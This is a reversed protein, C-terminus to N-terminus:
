IIPLKQYFHLHHQRINEPTTRWRQQLFDVYAHLLGNIKASRLADKDPAPLPPHLEITVRGQGDLASSVPVVRAGTDVALEAFSTAFPRERGLFPLPTGSSGQLGDPVIHLIGGGKLLKQVKRVQKLVFGEGKGVEVVNLNQRNVAGIKALVDHSELSTLQIGSRALSIPVCRSAGHHTNALIVGAGSESDTEGQLHHLGEITVVREFDANELKALASLRWDNAHNALLYQIAQHRDPPAGLFRQLPRLSKKYLTKQLLPNAFFHELARAAVPYPVPGLSRYFTRILQAKM